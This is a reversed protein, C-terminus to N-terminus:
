MRDYTSIESQFEQDFVREVEELDKDFSVDRLFHVAAESYEVRKKADQRHAKFVARQTSLRNQVSLSRRVGRTSRQMSLKM